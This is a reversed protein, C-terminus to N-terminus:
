KKIIIIIIIILGNDDENGKPTTKNDGDDDDTDDENGKPTTENDGDDDVTDLVDDDVTIKM